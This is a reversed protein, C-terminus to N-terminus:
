LKLADIGSEKPQSYVLSKLITKCKIVRENSFYKSKDKM